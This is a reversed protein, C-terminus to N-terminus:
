DNNEGKGSIRTQTTKDARYQELEDDTLSSLHESVIKKYDINGKRHSVTFKFGGGMTNRNDVLIEIQKKIKTKNAKAETESTHAELYQRSLDLWEETKSKDVKVYDFDQPAPPTHSIYNVWFKDWADVINEIWVEDLEVPMYTISDAKKCYVAFVLSVDHAGNWGDLSAAFHDDGVMFAPPFDDSLKKELLERARPEYKLGDTMYKNVPIIKDGTKVQFLQLPTKPEWPSMGLLAATESAMKLTRRVQLWQSSGQELDPVDGWGKAFCDMVFLQHQVQAMYHDPLPQKNEVIDWLPSSIGQAPTKIEIIM